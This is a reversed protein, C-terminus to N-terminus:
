TKNKKNRKEGQFPAEFLRGLRESLSYDLVVSDNLTFFVKLIMLDLWFGLVALAVLLGQGWTGCACMKFGQLSPSELGERPLRPATTCSNESLERQKEPKNEKGWRILFTPYCFTSNILLEYLLSRLLIHTYISKLCGLHVKFPAKARMQKRSKLFWKHSLRATLATCSSQRRAFLKDRLLNDLHM